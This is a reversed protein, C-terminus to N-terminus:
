ESDDPDPTVSRTRERALAERRDKEKKRDRAVKKATKDRQYNRANRIKM